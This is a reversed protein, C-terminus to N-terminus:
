AWAPPQERTFVALTLRDGATGYITLSNGYLPWCGARGAKVLAVGAGSTVATNGAPGSVATMDAAGHNAIAVSLFPVGWDRSLVGTTDLTWTEVALTCRKQLFRISSTIQSLGQEIQALCAGLAARDERALAGM